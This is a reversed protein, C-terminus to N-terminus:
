TKFQWVPKTLCQPNKQLPFIVWWMLIGLGNYIQDRLPSYPSSIRLHEAHESRVYDESSGCPLAWCNWLVSGQVFNSLGFTEKTQPKKQINTQTPTTKKTQKTKQPLPRKETNKRSILCSPKREPITFCEWDTMHFYVQSDWKKQKAFHDTQCAVKERKRSLLEQRKLICSRVKLSM